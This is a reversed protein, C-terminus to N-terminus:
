KVYDRSAGFVIALQQNKTHRIVKKRIELVCLEMKEIPLLFSDLEKIGSVSAILFSGGNAKLGGDARLGV